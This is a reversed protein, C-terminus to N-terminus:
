PDADFVWCEGGCILLDQAGDADLPRFDTAVVGLDYAVDELLLAGELDAPVLAAPATTRLPVWPAGDGFPRLVQGMYAVGGAEGLDLQGVVEGSLPEAYRLVEGLGDAGLLDVHGDGDLDDLEVQGTVGELVIDADEAEIVGEVGALFVHASMVLDDLGDGDLDSDSELDRAGVDKVRLLGAGAGLTGRVVFGDSLSLLALDRLGDGDLDEASGMDWGLYDNHVGRSYPQGETWPDELLYVLGTGVHESVAIVAGQERMGELVEFGRSTNVWEPSVPLEQLEAGLRSGELEEYLHAGGRGEDYVALGIEELGDGDLDAVVARWADEVGELQVMRPGEGGPDSDVPDSDAPDSDVGPSLSDREPEPTRPECALLLLLM